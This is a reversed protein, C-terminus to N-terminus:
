RIVGLRRLPWFRIIVRGRVHSRPLFGWVRSDSSNSSNDGLVFYHDEPIRVPHGPRGFSGRSDYHLGEPFGEHSMPHLREEDASRLWVWGDRIELEEGPLGVVRKVLLAPEEDELDGVPHDEVTRFIIVDGRGPGLIQFIGKLALVRDGPDRELNGDARHVTRAGYLTPEMSSSPIYYGEAVLTTVLFYIAAVYTIVRVWERLERVLLARWRKRAPPTKTAQV